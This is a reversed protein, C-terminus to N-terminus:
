IRQLIVPSTSLSRKISKKYNYILYLVLAFLSSVLYESTVSYHLESFIALFVLFSDSRFGILILILYKLIFLFVGLNIFSNALAFDGGFRNEGTNYGFLFSFNDATLLNDRIIGAKLEILFEIYEPSLKEVSNFLADYNIFVMILTASSFLYISIKNVGYFKLTWIIMLFIILLFGLGSQFAFIILLLSLINYCILLTSKKKIYFLSFYVFLFHTFSSMTPRGSVGLVRHSDNWGMILELQFFYLAVTLTLDAALIFSYFLIFSKLGPNLLSLLIFILYIGFYIRIANIAVFYGPFGISFLHLFPYFIVLFIILLAMGLIFPNIKIRM